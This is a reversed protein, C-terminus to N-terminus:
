ESMAREPAASQHYIEYLLIVAAMAVNLSDGRGEMPIRVVADCADLREPPIGKAECGLYLVTPARYVRDRYLTPADPCTGVISANHRCKWQLFGEFSTRVLRQHFLAGMSSRVAIPDYPDATNGILIVGAGGVADCARLITGLNGPFQIGDLAVWGLASLPPPRQLSDWRQRIVAGVGQTEERDAMWRLLDPTVRMRQAAKPCRDMLGDAQPGVLQEPAFVLTEIEAGSEMAARVFRIGEVFFLGTRDREKRMRLRRIRKVAPNGPSRLAANEEPRALDASEMERSRANM